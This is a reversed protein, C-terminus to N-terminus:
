AEVQLAKRERRELDFLKRVPRSEARGSRDRLLGLVVFRFNEGLDEWVFEPNLANIFARMAAVPVNVIKCVDEASLTRQMATVFAPKLSSAFASIQSAADGAQEVEVADKAVPTEDPQVATASQPKDGTLMEHLFEEDLPEIKDGFQGEKGVQWPVRSKEADSLAQRTLGHNVARTEEDVDDRLDADLLKKYVKLNQVHLADPELGWLAATAAHKELLAQCSQKMEAWDKSKIADSVNAKLAALAASRRTYV